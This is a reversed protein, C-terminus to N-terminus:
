FLFSHGMQVIQLSKLITVLENRQASNPDAAALRVINIYPHHRLPTSRLERLREDAVDRLIKQLKEVRHPEKKTAGWRLSEPLVGENAVRFLYRYARKQRFVEPPVGLAFEIIRRDLLPYRYEVHHAMGLASWANIRTNLHGMTYLEIQRKYALLRKMRKVKNNNAHAALLLSSAFRLDDNEDRNNLPLLPHILGRYIEGGLGKITDSQEYLHSLLTNIRGTRLLEAYLNVGSYSILEDGGWGSLITRVGDKQAEKLLPKEYLTMTLENNALDDSALVERIQKADIMFHHNEIGEAECVTRSNRWEFHNSDEGPEPPHIWNYTKLPRNEAALHRKALVAISSSDLGGSLHSAVPYLSRTRSTVSKELLDRLMQGYEDMNKFRVSPAEVADWYVRKRIGSPAIMLTTAPPLKEVSEFLTWSPHCFTSQSLFLAVAEDRYERPVHPHATLTRMDNAFVFRESNLHYYLPKIASHDTACFFENNVSDYIVFTFDGLLYRPSNEGWKLYAELILDSDSYFTHSHLGLKGILEDRNDLRADASIAVKKGQIVKCSPLKENISEPTNWIAAHGLAASNDRYIECADPTYLVIQDRMSELIQLSAPERNRNFFGFIGSLVENRDDM